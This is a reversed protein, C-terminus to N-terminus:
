HCTQFRPEDDMERLAAALLILRRTAAEFENNDMADDIARKFNELGADIEAFIEILEGKTM